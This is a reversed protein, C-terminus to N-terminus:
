TQPNHNLATMFDAVTDIQEAAMILQKGIQIARREALTRLPEELTSIDAVKAIGVVRRILECGAYGASDKLIKSLKYSLLAEDQLNHARWTTSFTEQYTMLLTNITDAFYAKDQGKVEHHLSAFVLNAVFCGLDFGAPGFCAFEHDIVKTQAEGVFVSGTHLDGHILTEAETMFQWKLRRVRHCLQDDEWLLAKVFGRLSKSMENRDCDYFPESLVLNETIDCLDPNIFQSMKLKKAKGGLVWDLNLVHSTAMFIGMHSAYHNYFAGSLLVSRLLKLDSLDEMVLCHRELDYDYVKPVYPAVIDNYERLLQYEIRNRDTSVVFADSIRAVPGAQKIILSQGSHTDWVRFVYNLNGDGIERCSLEAHPEFWDQRNKVYTIAESESMTFRSNVGYQM